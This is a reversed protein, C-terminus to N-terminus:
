FVKEDGRKRLWTSMVLQIADREEAGGTLNTVDWEGGIAQGIHPKWFSGVLVSM